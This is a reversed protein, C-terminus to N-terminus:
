AIDPILLDNAQKMGMLLSVPDATVSRMLAAAAAPDQLTAGHQFQTDVFELNVLVKNALATIDGNGGSDQAGAIINAVVSGLPQGAAIAQKVQGSWYASGAADVPRAFLNSFLSVVFSSIEADSATTPHALLPYIAKAGASGAFNNAMQHFSDM